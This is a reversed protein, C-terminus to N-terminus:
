KGEKVIEIRRIELTHDGVQEVGFPLNLKIVADKIGELFTSKGCGAPGDAKITFSQGFRIKGKKEYTM